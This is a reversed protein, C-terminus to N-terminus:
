SNKTWLEFFQTQEFTPNEFKVIKCEALGGDNTAIILNLGIKNLTKSIYNDWKGQGDILDSFYGNFNIGSVNELSKQYMEKTYGRGKKYSDLYLQNLVQDLRKAGHTAELIQVDAVLAAILGEMYISVKRDKIGPVYGDLWTDFSSQAVSYNFRGGNNYHRDLDAALSKAYEDFSWVGSRYLMLDGYYTTVGEYVYGLESYNEKTFDYPWMEQPRIRKVNWLHFLEHSSIAIFDAYFEPTDMEEAPGMAIVTSNSHEVGHRFKYPLLLYLFHYDSMPLEGFIAIQALAYKRTHEELTHMASCTGGQFWFHIKTKEVMFTHHVLSPSAFFPSDALSDFNPALLTKGKHPLQCAIEWNAPVDLEVEIPLHINAPVYMFCNVPNLYLLNEDAFSAGADPQNAYYQYSIEVKDIGFASIQWSDKTLKKFALSNGQKDFAKFMRINKAYNALEYRGPRWSPLQLILNEEETKSVEATFQVFHDQPNSICVKYNM